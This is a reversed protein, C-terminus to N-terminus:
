DEGKRLEQGISGRMAAASQAIATVIVLVATGIAAIALPLLDPQVTVAPGGAGIFVALNLAPGVALPLALAALLGGAVAVVLLPLAELVAVTKAQRSRVGLTTLTVLLRKRSDASLAFGLVVAAVALLAAAALCLAFIQTAAGALPSAAIDQRLVAARLTLKGGPISRHV